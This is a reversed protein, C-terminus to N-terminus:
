KTAGIQKKVLEVLREAEARAEENAEKPDYIDVANNFCELMEDIASLKWKNNIIDRLEILLYQALMGLCCPTYLSVSSEIDSKLARCHNICAITTKSPDGTEPWEDIKKKILDCLYFIIPEAKGSIGYDRMTIACGNVIALITFSKVDAKSM